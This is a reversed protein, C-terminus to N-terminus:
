RSMLENYNFKDGLCDWITVPPGTTALCRSDYVNAYKHVTVRGLMFSAGFPTVRWFGARGGDDRRIQTEEEILNWYRLKSEERNGKLSNEKRLDPLYGWDTGFAKWMGILDHAMSSNISRPYVKSFQKCCPCYEGKKVRARLWDRAEQLTMDATVTTM